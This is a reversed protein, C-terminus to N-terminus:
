GSSTATRTTSGPSASGGHLQIMEGAVASFAESCVSKAVAAARPLAGPDEDAAFAAGLAASRASEVLVYADALRHKVAQFSGIPRGSQVRDRAYEATLELCREAAGVQEAALATCALDRVHELARGGDGDVGLLRGEAGTLVWRAQARTEDMTVVPERRVGASGPAVEFLSVGHATGAAIVLDKVRQAPEPYAPAPRRGRGPYTPTSPRADEPQATTTTSIGGRLRTRTELGLRFVATDGYGGDAIVQPVDIGWSRTEDIMDLALQWKEVHGVQAPIACTDRRAVKAPDAKPSAPDWSGPLFLCWNVAASAGKSALHLSVGAQCNTVKGATGTYQRSVCASADGDKLFGTDDIVLATPKIVPQMRWALRARVHAADWPSSTVFHALAQRNGDEGLRAAMPEVSKRGGDLLLGRLYVGGWRRQDARAFPEFM